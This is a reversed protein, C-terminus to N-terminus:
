FTPLLMSNNQRTTFNLARQHQIQKTDLKIKRVDQVSKEVVPQKKLNQTNILNSNEEEFDITIASTDILLPTEESAQTLPILLLSLILILKKM